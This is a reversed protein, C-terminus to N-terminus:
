CPAVSRRERLEVLLEARAAHRELEVLEAVADLAHVRLHAPLEPDFAVRAFWLAGERADSPKRGYRRVAERMASSFPRFAAIARHAREVEVEIQDDTWGERKKLGM